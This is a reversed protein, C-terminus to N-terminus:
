GATPRRALAAGADLQQDFGCACGHRLAKPHHGISRVPTKSCGGGLPCQGRPRRWGPGGPGVASSSLVYSGTAVSALLLIFANVSVRWALAREPPAYASTMALFIPAGGLPNVIPFLAAFVLLVGEVIQRLEATM